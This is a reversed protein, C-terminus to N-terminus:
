HPGMIWHYYPWILTCTTLGGSNGGTVVGALRTQPSIAPSGSDGRCCYRATDIFKMYQSDVKKLVLNLENKGEWANECQPGTPGWSVLKFLMGPQPYWDPSELPMYGLHNGITNRTIQQSNADLMIVALDVGQSLNPTVLRYSTHKIVRGHLEIARRDDGTMRVHVFEKCSTQGNQLYLCLCHAATLVRDYSILTANCSGVEGISSWLREDINTGGRFAFATNTFIFGIAMVLLAIYPIAGHQHQQYRFRSTKMTGGKGEAYLPMASIVLLRKEAGRQYYM